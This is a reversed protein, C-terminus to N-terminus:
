SSEGLTETSFLPLQAHLSLMTSRVASLAADCSGWNSKPASPLHCVWGPLKVAATKATRDPIAEIAWRVPRRVTM